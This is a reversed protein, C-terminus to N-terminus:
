LVFESDMEDSSRDQRYIGSARQLHIFRYGGADAEGPFHYDEHPEGRIQAPNDATNVKNLTEAKM